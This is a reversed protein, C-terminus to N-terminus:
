CVSPISSPLSGMPVHVARSASAKSSRTETTLNPVSVPVRAWGPRSMSATRNRLSGTDCGAGADGGSVATAEVVSSLRATAAVVEIRHVPKLHLGGVGVLLFKAPGLVGLELATKNQIHNSVTAVHRMNTKVM